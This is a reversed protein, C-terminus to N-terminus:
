NKAVTVTVEGSPVMIWGAEEGVWKTWGEALEELEEVGSVVKSKVALEGFSSKMTREAWMGGWWEREEPSSYTWCSSTCKIDERKVGADMFWKHLKRGALPDTGTYQATAQYVRNWKELAESEPYWTFSAFDAERAAIIGGPKCVRLLEKIAAIPPTPLHQLVQHLHIIDFSNDEFPLNFIDAQQFTVNKLGKSAALPAATDLLVYDIGTVQANPLREALDCTLTGPGCGADLVAVAASPQAAAYPKLHPIIYAASNEITRWNHSKLVSPHHGHIYAKEQSSSM